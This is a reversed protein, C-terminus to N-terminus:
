VERILYKDYATGGESHGDFRRTVEEAIEGDFMDSEYWPLNDWYEALWQMDLKACAAKFAAVYGATGTDYDLRSYGDEDRTLADAGIVSVYEGGLAYYFYAPIRSKIEDPIKYAEKETEM